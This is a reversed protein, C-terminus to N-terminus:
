RYRDIYILRDVLLKSIGSAIIPHIPLIFYFIKFKRELPYIKYIQIKLSKEKENGTSEDQVWENGTSEDQVWENGTSEDQVWGKRTSENTEPWNMRFMNQDIWENGTSENQVWENKPLLNHLFMSFCTYKQM